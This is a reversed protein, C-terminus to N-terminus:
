ENWFNPFKKKFSSCLSSQSNTLGIITEKGAYFCSIVGRLYDESVQGYSEKRPDDSMLTNQEPYFANDDGGCGKYGKGSMSCNPLGVTDGDQFQSPKATFYEYRLGLSHGLEQMFVIGLWRKADSENLKGRDTSITILSNKGRALKSSSNFVLPSLVVIKVHDIGLGSLGEVMRDDCVLAKKSGETIRCAQGETTFIKFAMQDKLSKFPETTFLAAKLVEIKGLAENQEKFGDYFFIITFKDGYNRKLETLLKEDPSLGKTDPAVGLPRTNEEPTSLKMSKTQWLFVSVICIILLACIGAFFVLAGKDMYLRNEKMYYKIRFKM